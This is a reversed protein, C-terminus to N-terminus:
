KNYKFQTIYEDLKNYDLMIINLKEGYYDDSSNYGNIRIHPYIYNESMNFVEKFLGAMDFRYKEAITPKIEVVNVVSDELSAIVANWSGIISSTTVLDKNIRNSLNANSIESM